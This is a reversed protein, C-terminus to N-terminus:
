WRAVTVVLLLLSMVSTALAPLTEKARFHHHAAGVLITVLGLAAVPTLIPLVDLYWPLVLGLGGLVECVGIFQVFGKVYPLKELQERVASPQLIAVVGHIVFMASFFIQLIWLLTNM